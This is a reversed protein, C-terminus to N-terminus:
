RTLLTRSYSRYAKAQMTEKPRATGTTQGTTEKMHKAHKMHTPHKAVGPSAEPAPQMQAMAGGGALALACASALILKKMSTEMPHSVIANVAPGGFLEMRSCGSRMQM